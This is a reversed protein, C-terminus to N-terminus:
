TWRGPAAPRPSRGPWWGSRRRQHPGSPWSPARHPSPSWRSPWAAARGSARPGPSTIGPSAPLPERGALPTRGGRASGARARRRRARPGCAPAAPRPRRARSGPRHTSSWSAPCRVPPAPRAAAPTGHRRGPRDEPGAGPQDHEIGLVQAQHVDGGLAVREAALDEGELLVKGARLEAGNRDAGDEDARGPHHVVAGVHRDQGLGAAVRDGDLLVVEQRDREVGLEDALDPQM